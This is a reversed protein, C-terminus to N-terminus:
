IIDGNKFYYATLGKEVILIVKYEFPVCSTQEVKFNFGVRTLSM